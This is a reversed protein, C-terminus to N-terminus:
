WVPQNATGYLEERVQVEILSRKEEVVIVLDLGSPSSACSRRELPWPVLRDQLLRLGLRQGRGRRHRTRRAGPARRSLEQRTVVGIKPNRGGSLRHPQPPQRPRLRPPTASSTTCGRKRSSRDDGPRINLGGPPM